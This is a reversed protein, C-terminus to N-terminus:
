LGIKHRMMCPMISALLSQVIPLSKSSIRIAYTGREKKITCKINFKDTLARILLEVEELSFGQTNLVIAQDRRCFSGDDCIWYCLGLPTLLEAINLPVIKKGSSYFLEYLENFCPLAYTKFGVASYIKGTRKDPSRSTIKPVMGCYSSFLEYLHQIYEKHVIGQTFELRANISTKQKHNYLDGLLLGILIDKLDSSLTFQAREAKTIYNKKM